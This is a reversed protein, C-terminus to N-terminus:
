NLSNTDVGVSTDTNQIETGLTDLQTTDENTISESQKILVNKNAQWIYIGGIILIIIIVTLGLFAGNTSKDQDM